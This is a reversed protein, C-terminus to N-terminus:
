DDFVERLSGDRYVSLIFDEKELDRIYKAKLYNIYNLVETRDPNLYLDIDKKLRPNLVFGGNKSEVFDIEESISYPSNKFLKKIDNLDPYSQLV